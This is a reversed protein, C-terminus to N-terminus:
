QRRIDYMAYMGLHYKLGLKVKCVGNVLKHNKYITTKQKISSIRPTNSSEM